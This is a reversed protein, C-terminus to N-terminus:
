IKMNGSFRGQTLTTANGPVHFDSSYQKGNNLRNFDFICVPGCAM